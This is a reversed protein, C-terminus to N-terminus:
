IAILITAMKKTGHFNLWTIIEGVNARQSANAM